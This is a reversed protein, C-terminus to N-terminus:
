KTEGTVDRGNVVTVYHRANLWVAKYQPLMGAREVLMDALEPSLSDLPIFKKADDGDPPDPNSELQKKAKDAPVLHGQAKGSEKHSPNIKEKKPESSSSDEINSMLSGELAQKFYNPALFNGAKILLPKLKLGSDKKSM